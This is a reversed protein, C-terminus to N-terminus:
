FCRIKGSSTIGNLILAVDGLQPLKVLQSWWRNMMTSVYFGLLLALVKVTAKEYSHIDKVRDQYGKKTFM